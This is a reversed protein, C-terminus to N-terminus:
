NSKPFTTCSQLDAQQVCIHHTQLVWILDKLQVSWRSDARHDLLGLIHMALLDWLISDALRQGIIADSTQGKKKQKERRWSPGVM